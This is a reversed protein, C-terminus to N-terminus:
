AEGGTQDNLQQIKQQPLPLRWLEGPARAALADFLKRKIPELLEPATGGADDIALNLAGYIHCIEENTLCVDDIKSSNM